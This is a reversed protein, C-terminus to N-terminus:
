GLRDGEGEWEEGGMTEIRSRAEEGQRESREARGRWEVGREEGKVRNRWKKQLV